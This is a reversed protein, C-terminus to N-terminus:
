TTQFNSQIKNEASALAKEKQKESLEDFTYVNYTKTKM